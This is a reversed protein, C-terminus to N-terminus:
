RLNTIDNIPEFLGTTESIEKRFDTDKHYVLGPAQSPTHSRDSISFM